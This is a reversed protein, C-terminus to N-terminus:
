RQLLVEAYVINDNLESMLNTNDGTIEEIENRENQAKKSADEAEKKIKEIDVDPVTLSNVNAIVTLAEDYAKNARDLSDAVVGTTTELTSKALSIENQINRTLDDKISSEMDITKKAKDYSETAIKDAEEADKRNKESLAELKEAQSRADRSIESIQGSQQDLEDSKAKARNLATIGEKKLLDQAKLLETNAEDIIGKALNFSIEAREIESLTDKQKDDTTSLLSTVNQLRNELDSLREKLTLDGGGAGAKADDSLIDIKELISKLKHEFEDDDIVTPKSAIEQLTDKLKRLKARHDDAADQVLDYCHPCDICGQHRDFTNEKCRNCQRGEVNHNCLCQGSIDCQEAISGSPDCNCAKCGETSFDYYLDVCKDCQLGTIGPKCNCQGTNVDCSSNYSGISNCNCGSCGNGSQINYYGSKCTDCDRGIVNEKCHCNGTYPDCNSTGDDTQQTGDPYCSCRECNGHPLAM